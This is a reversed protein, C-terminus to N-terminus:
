LHLFASGLFYGIVFFLIFAILGIILWLLLPSRSAPVEPHLYTYPQDQAQRTTAALLSPDAITPAAPAIPEMSPSALKVAHDMQYSSPPYGPQAAPLPHSAIGVPLSAPSFQRPKVEEAQSYAAMHAALPVSPEITETLAYLATDLAEVTNIHQPHSRIITRAVLECLEAPINRMFRLRGDLPPEVVTAHSGRSSLLQYLLLGVARVDDAQRGPSIVGYPLDRDALQVDESGIANWANFYQMDSPLAFNNVRILGRRDCLIAAPTLDGHCVRRGPSSAYLLAACIQRGYEIVDYPQLQAQLLAAFDDGEVYEEILYLQDAESVMDYLMVVNPHSFSSTKRIAAKYQPIFAASVVKVAVLRQFSQDIGQYVTAFQGQQTLRQLLYHGGIVQGIEM